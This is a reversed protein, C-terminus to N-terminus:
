PSPRRACSTWFVRAKYRPLCASHHLWFLLFSGSLNQCSKRKEKKTLDNRCPVLPSLSFLTVSIRSFDIRDRRHLPCRSYRSPLSARHPTSILITRATNLRQGRLTRALIVVANGPIKKGLDANRFVVPIESEFRIESVRVRVFIEGSFAPTIRARVRPRAAHLIRLLLCAIGGKDPNSDGPM